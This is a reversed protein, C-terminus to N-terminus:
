RFVNLHNERLIDIAEYLDASAKHWDLRQCLEEATYNDATRLMLAMEEYNEERYPVKQIEQVTTYGNGALMLATLGLSAMRVFARGGSKKRGTQCLGFILLVGILGIMFQASYRSSLAYDERVFIWRGMTVLVHNMGGSLLLILPFLTREYLKRSLCLLLALLYAAMVLLGLLVILGDQLPQGQGYFNQITEQGLVAGAFSKVFFRPLFLPQEAMVESLSASTAGAHDWVAYHRSLLYIFLAALTCFFVGAYFRACNKGNGSQAAACPMQAQRQKQLRRSRRLHWMCYGSALLMVGAYAAIYEGAFMLILFPFLFLLWNWNKKRIGEARFLPVERPEQSAQRAGATTGAAKLRQVDAQWIYDFVAYNGFFLGFSVVHAWASGNLLIEWKNLSFLVAMIALYWPLRLKMRRAYLSLVLACLLLGAATCLRDVTVSFGFLKVNILRQLFAAPIRTFVDAVFFKDPNTVDPLYEDVLRIYDSYVVDAAAAHIYWVAFLTGLLPLLLWPWLLVRAGCPAKVACQGCANQVGKKEQESTGETKRM